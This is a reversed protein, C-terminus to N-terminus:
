VLTSSTLLHFRKGGSGAVRWTYHGGVMLIAAHVAILSYVLKSFRLIWRSGVGTM